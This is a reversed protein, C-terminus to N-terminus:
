AAVGRRPDSGTVPGQARHPAAAAVARVREVVLDVVAPHDALVEGCRAGAAEAAERIRADFLGPALLYPVVAVRAAGADRFRAVAAPIDPGGGSAYAVGVPVGLVVALMDAAQRAESRGVPHSTGAAALVVAVPADDAERVREALAAVVHRDPGLHPTVRATPAYATAAEPVDVLVHHGSGLLVPVIVDTDGQTLVGALSPEATSLWGVDVRTGALRGRVAAALSAIVRVGGPHSTGHAALVVRM